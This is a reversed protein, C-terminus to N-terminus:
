NSYIKNLLSNYSWDKEYKEGDIIFTPTGKVGLSKGQMYHKNVLRHVKDSDLDNQFKEMDLELANAIRLITTLDLQKQARFLSDHMEWFKNQEGAAAAANACIMSNPYSETDPLFKFVVKVDDRKARVLQGIMYSSNLCSPCQFNIFEVITHPAKPNGLIFEDEEVLNSIASKNDTSKKGM